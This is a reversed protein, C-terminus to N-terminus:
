RSVRNILKVMTSVDGRFSEAVEHEEIFDSDALVRLIKMLEVTSVSVDYDYHTKRNGFEEVDYLTLTVCLGLDSRKVDIAHIDSAVTSLIENRARSATRSFIM